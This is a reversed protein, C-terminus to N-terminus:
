RYLAKITGWTLSQVFSPDDVLPATAGQEIEKTANDQLFAVASLSEPRAWNCWDYQGDTVFDFEQRTTVTDPYPASFSVPSGEMAGAFGRWCSPVVEFAPHSAFPHPWDREVVAIRLKWDGPLAEQAVARVSVTGGSHDRWASAELAVRTFVSKRASGRGHTRASWHTEIAQIHTKATPTSVKTIQNVETAARHFSAKFQDRAILMTIVGTKRVTLPTSVYTWM